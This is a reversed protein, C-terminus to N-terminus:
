YSSGYPPAMLMRLRVVSNQSLNPRRTGISKAGMAPALAGARDIATAFAPPRPAQPASKIARESITGPGILHSGRAIASKLEIEPNGVRGRDAIRGVFFAHALKKRLPPRHDCFVRTIGPWWVEGRLALRQELGAWGYDRRYHSEVWGFEHIPKLGKADRPEGIRRGDSFRLCCLRSACVHNHNLSHFGAPVTAAKIGILGLAFHHSQSGKNRCDDVSDPNRDDSGSANGVASADRCCKCQTRTCRLDACSEQACRFRANM